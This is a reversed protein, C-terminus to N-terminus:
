GGPGVKRNSETSKRRKSRGAGVRLRDHPGGFSPAVLPVRRDAALRDSGCRVRCAHYRPLRFAWRVAPSKLLPRARNACCTPSKALMCSICHGNELSSLVNAAGDGSHTGGATRLLDTRTVVTRGLLLLPNIGAGSLNVKMAGEEGASKAAEGRDGSKKNM